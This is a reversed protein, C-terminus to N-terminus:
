RMEESVDLHVKERAELLNEARHRGNFSPQDLNELHYLNILQHIRRTNPKDPSWSNIPSWDGTCEYRFRYKTQRRGPAQNMGQGPAGHEPLDASPRPGVIEWAFGRKRARKTLKCFASQALSNVLQHHHLDKFLM